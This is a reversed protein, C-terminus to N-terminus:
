PPWGTSDDIGDKDLSGHRCRPHNRRGRSLRRGKCSSQIAKHRKSLASWPPPIRARQGNRERNPKGPHGRHLPPDVNSSGATQTIATVSLRTLFSEVTAGSLTYLLKPINGFAKRVTKHHRGQHMVVVRSGEHLGRMFYKKGVAYLMHRSASGLAKCNRM